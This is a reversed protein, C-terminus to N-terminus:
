MRIFPQVFTVWGTRKRGGQCWSEQKGVERQGEVESEFERRLVHGDGGGGAVHCWVFM